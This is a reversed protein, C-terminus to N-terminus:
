TVESGNVDSRSGESRNGKRRNGESRRKVESRSGKGRSSNGGLDKRGAAKRHEVYRRLARELTPHQRSFWRRTRFFTTFTWNGVAVTPSIEKFAMGNGLREVSSPGYVNRGGNSDAHIAYLVVKSNEVSFRHVTTEIYKPRAAGNDFFETECFGAQEYDGEPTKQFNNTFKQWQKTSYQEYGPRSYQTFLWIGKAPFLDNFDKAVQDIPDNRADGPAPVASDAALGPKCLLVAAALIAAFGFGRPHIRRKMVNVM